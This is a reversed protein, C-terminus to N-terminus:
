AGGGGGGTAVAVPAGTLKVRITGGTTVGKSEWAVAAAPDGAGFQGTEPDFTLAEGVSIEAADAKPLDYVGETHVTGTENIGIDVAAVGLIAGILVAQGSLIAANGTNTYQLTKGDFVFNKM